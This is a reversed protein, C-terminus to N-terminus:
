HVNFVMWLCSSVDIFVEAKAAGGGKGFVGLVAASLVRVGRQQLVRESGRFQGRVRRGRLLRDEFIRQVSGQIFHCM